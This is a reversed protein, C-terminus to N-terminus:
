ILRKLPLQELPCEWSGSSGIVEVPVSAMGDIDPTVLGSLRSHFASLTSQGVM